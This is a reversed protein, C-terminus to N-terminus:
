LARIPLSLEVTRSGRPTIAVRDQRRDFEVERAKHMGALLSNRFRSPNTYETWSLLDGVSVHDGSAYLLLLVSERTGLSPDLVRRVSGSDWVIPVERASLAEVVDTAQDVSVDHFIRVLEAMLWKSMALVLEADMHNPDVDGGVHGVSRNNRVEYLAIVVRPIGVKISRPVAAPASELVRCSDVMNKPKNAKSPYSGDIYGKLITYVVECLKGGNLESSEWRKARYNSVIETFAAMLEARLGSPLQGFVEAPLLAAKSM